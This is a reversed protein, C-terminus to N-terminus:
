WVAEDDLDHVTFPNGPTAADAEAILRDEDTAEAMTAAKLADLLAPDSARYNARGVRELAGVSFGALEGHM